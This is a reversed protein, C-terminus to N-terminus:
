INPSRNRVPTPSKSDRRRACVRAWAVEGARAARARSKEVDDEDVFLESTRTVRFQYAGTVRMGPFLEAMFEHLISSLFVFDYPKESIEAPLRVIRPLSRPARVLAMHGERGFADKGELSVAFNLSKNLIRPFPHAPDLGLPSLVPLVENQFYGQLWRQQKVTWKDRAIFRIGERDLEPLLIDNWFSYQAAVLELVRQRIRTLLESPAVGDAGPQADGFAVHHRLIAVQVEFFEDLNSNSICLFRMRELLPMSADQAQALVRFQFELQALERNLYLAPDRLNM